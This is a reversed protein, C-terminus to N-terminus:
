AGKNQTAETQTTTKESQGRQELQERHELIVPKAHSANSARAVMAQGYSICGDNAPLEKHLLVEFGAQELLPVTHEILYRNMFVGGSLAVTSLGSIKRAFEALDVMLACIADHFRRAITPTPTDITLDALIAQVVPKPDITLPITLPQSPKAQTVDFYYRPDREQAAARALENKKEAQAVAELEIAPQGDYTEETCIGLLASVADFLRGMSSTQPTNLKGEIMQDLLACQETGLADLLPKAASHDLIKCSKLLAYAMRNPHKIAAAGGPLPMYALHAFREYKALTALLVEGGWLAGDSGYGTGDFAIGIVPKDLARPQTTANEALVAAIHAHHHQVESVPLGCSRAWKSALYEPHKDCVLSQPALAFLTQYLDKTNMYNSFSNASELDGLHQSVFAESGRVFCFTSKQEAGTALVIEPSTLAVPTDESVQKPLKEPLEVLAKESVQEHSLITGDGEPVGDGMPLVPSAVASHSLITGDGEPLALPLPAYGRARRIMHTRGDIVRVVSDDYRSRIPRNNDLFADAVEALLSHAENELAIIPESSLNGSTMVLPVGVAELLLHQVPTSPLMVGLEPLIGAVSPAILTKSEEHAQLLVIPRAPSLLLAEEQENVECISRVGDLSSVMLAFPQIPRRKRKRLRRVAEENTADCALHYGGLAKIALIKGEKLL